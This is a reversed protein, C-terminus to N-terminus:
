TLTALQRRVLDRAARPDFPKMLMPAGISRLFRRKDADLVDGTVFIVRHRLTPFRRELERYLELGDMGPMKTDSVSLDFARRELRRLAETGTSAIEVRHGDHRLEEVLVEALDPQDDVILITGSEVAAPMESPGPGGSAVPPAPVPLRIM